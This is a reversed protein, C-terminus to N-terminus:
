EALTSTGAYIFVAKREYRGVYDRVRRELTESGYGGLATVPIGLDGFWARVLGVLANKEVGLILTVSQSACRDVKFAGVVSSLCALSSRWYGLEYLKRGHELLAPFDDNRRATATKNSLTNYSGPKNEILEESVLRYFLQRLTVPIEYSEVIEAARRIIAPWIGIRLPFTTGNRDWGQNHRSCLSKALVANECSKSGDARPEGWCQQASRPIKAKKATKAEALCRLELEHRATTLEPTIFESDDDELEDYELNSEENIFDDSM